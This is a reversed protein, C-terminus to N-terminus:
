AGRLRGHPNTAVGGAVVPRTGAAGSPPRAPAAHSLHPPLGHPIRGAARRDGVRGLAHRPAPEAPTAEVGAAAAHPPPIADGAGFWALPTRATSGTARPSCRYTATGRSCRARSPVPRPRRAGFSRM